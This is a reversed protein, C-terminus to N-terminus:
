LPRLDAKIKDNKNPLETLEEKGKTMLFKM